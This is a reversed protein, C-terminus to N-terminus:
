QRADGSVCRSLASGGIHNIVPSFSAGLVCPSSSRCVNFCSPIGVQWCTARAGGPTKITAAIYKGDLAIDPRLVCYEALLEVTLKGNTLSVLFLPKTDYAGLDRRIEPNEKRGGWALLQDSDIWCVGITHAPIEITTIAQGDGKISPVQLRSSLVAVDFDSNEITAIRELTPDYAPWSFSGSNADSGFSAVLEGIKADWIRLGDSSRNTQRSRRSNEFDVEAPKDEARSCLYKSDSTFGMVLVRGTQRIPAAIPRATQADFLQLHDLKARSCIVKGNPSVAPLVFDGAQMVHPMTGVVHLRNLPELVSVTDEMRSAAPEGAEIPGCPVRQVVAIYDYALVAM